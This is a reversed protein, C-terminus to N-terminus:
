RDGEQYPVDEGDAGMFRGNCFIGYDRDIKGIRLLEVLFHGSPRRTVVLDGPKDQRKVFEAVTQRQGATLDEPAVLKLPNALARTVDDRCNSNWGALRCWSGDTFEVTFDVQHRSFKKREVAAINSRETEWLIEDCLDNKDDVLGLVLLRRDTVALHTRDIPTRRGPDLQWPLTRALTGPAAWIVPFDEVENEPEQPSGLRSASGTSGSGALSELVGLTAVALFGLGFKGGERVQRSKKSRVTFAPGEPWDALETQMDNRETDRFWRMGSVGDATGTAFSVGCRAILTEGPDPQWTTM